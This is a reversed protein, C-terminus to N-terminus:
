GESPIIPVQRSSSLVQTHLRCRQLNGQYTQSLLPVTPNIDFECVIRGAKEIRWLGKSRSSKWFAIFVVRVEREKKRESGVEMKKGQEMSNHHHRYPLVCSSQWNSCDNVDETAADIEYLGIPQTTRKAQWVEYFYGLKELTRVTSDQSHTTFTIM